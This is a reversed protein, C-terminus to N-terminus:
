LANRQEDATMEDWKEVAQAFVEIAQQMSIHHTKRDELAALEAKFRQQEDKMEGFRKEIEAIFFPDSSRELGRVLNKMADELAALQSAKLRRENELTHDLDQVAEEWAKRKFTSVLRHKFRSVIAQDLW